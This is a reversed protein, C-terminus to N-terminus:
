GGRYPQQSVQHQIQFGSPWLRMLRCNCEACQLDWLLNRSKKIRSGIQVLVASNTRPADHWPVLTPYSTPVARARAPPTSFRPSLLPQQRGPFSVRGLEDRIAEVMGREGTNPSAMLWSPRPQRRHRGRAQRMNVYRGVPRGSVDAQLHLPDVLGDDFEGRM